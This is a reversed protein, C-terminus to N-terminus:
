VGPHGSEASQRFYEAHRHRFQASVGVHSEHQDAGIRVVQRRRKDLLLALACAAAGVGLLIAILTTVASFAAEPSRVLSTAYVTGLVAPGLAAGIQRLATSSAAAMGARQPAVSTVAAVTTARM